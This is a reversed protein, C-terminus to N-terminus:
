CKMWIQRDKILMQPQSRLKLSQDSFIVPELDNTLHKHAENTESCLYARFIM